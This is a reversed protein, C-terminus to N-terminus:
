SPPTRRLAPSPTRDPPPPVSSPASFRAPLGADGKCGLEKVMALSVAHLVNLNDMRMTESETAPLRLRGLEGEILVPENGSGFESSSCEMYLYARSSRALSVKGLEYPTLQHAPSEPIAKPFYFSLDIMANVASPGYAYCLPYEQNEDAGTEHFGSVLKKAADGLSKQDPEALDGLHKQNSWEWDYTRSELVDLLARRTGKSLNAGCLKTQASVTRSRGTQENSDCAALSAVSVAVCVVTATLQRALENSQM